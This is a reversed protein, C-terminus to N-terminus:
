EHLLRLNAADKVRAADFAASWAVNLLRQAAALQASTHGPMEMLLNRSLVLFDYEAQKEGLLDLAAAYASAQDQEGIM